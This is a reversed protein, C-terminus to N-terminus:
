KPGFFQEFLDTTDLPNEKKQKLKEEDTVAGTKPDFGFFQSFTQGLNDFDINVAAPGKPGASRAAHPQASDAKSQELDYKKRKEADGLVEYAENIEKFKVEAAKDDPHLDPHYKKALARFAKKLEADTAGPAVGLTQYLENM